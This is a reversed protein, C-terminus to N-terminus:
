QPVGRMEDWAMRLGITLVVLMVVVTGVAIIAIMALRDIM